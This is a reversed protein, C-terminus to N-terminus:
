TRSGACVRIPKTARWRITVLTRPWNASNVPEIVTPASRADEVASAVICVADMSVPTASRSVWRREPSKRSISFYGVMVKALAFTTEPLPVSKVTVPSRVMLPTVLGTVTSTSSSPMALSGHPLSFSATEARVSISRSSKPIVHFTARSVPPTSTELFITMSISAWAERWAPDVPAASREVRSAGAAVM